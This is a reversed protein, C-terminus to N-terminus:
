GWAAGGWSMRPTNNVTIDENGSGVMNQCLQTVNVSTNTTGYVAYLDAIAM